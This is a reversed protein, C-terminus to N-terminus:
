GGAPKVYNLLFYGLGIFGLVFVAYLPLILGILLWPSPMHRLSEKIVALDREISALRDEIARFRADIPYDMLTM